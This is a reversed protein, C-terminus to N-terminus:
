TGRERARAHLLVHVTARRPSDHGNLTVRVCAWRYEECSYPGQDTIIWARM